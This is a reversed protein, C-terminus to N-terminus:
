QGGEYPCVDIFDCFASYGDGKPCKKPELPYESNRIKDVYIRIMAQVEDLMRQWEDDKLIGKRKRKAFPLKADKVLINEVAGKKMSVFAGGPVIKQLLKEAVLIYVPMQLNTGDYIANIDPTYSNKYDYVIARGSSDTDIRDIKGCLKIDPNKDLAFSGDYGFALEQKEPLFDGQVGIHYELYAMINDILNNKEIEYLKSHPFNEPKNIGQLFQETINTIEVSYEPLKETLLKERHKQFFVEMVKHLINGKTIANYQSEDYEREIKLVRSLFFKYPCEGYTNLASISFIYNNFYERIKQKVEDSNIGLEPLNRRVDSRNIVSAFDVKREDIRGATEKVKVLFPSPLAPTEQEIVKPYSFYGNSSSAMLFEFAERERQLLLDITDISYGQQNILEREENKLLWDPRFDRPFEGEVMGLVYVKDFKLGRLMTPALVEIGPQAPRRVYNRTMCFARLIKLFGEFTLESHSYIDDATRIDELLGIFAEYSKIDRIILDLDKGHVQTFKEPYGREKLFSLIFEAWEGPKKHMTGDFPLSEDFYLDAEGRFFEKVFPNELLIGQKPLNVPIRAKEFVEIILPSYTDISRVVICAREPPLGESIDKLIEHALNYVETKRDQAAIITASNICPRLPSNVSEFRDGLADTIKKQITNLYFFDKFVIRDYNRVFASEAIYQKCLIYRDELDYLGRTKLFEEYSEYILFFDMLRPNDEVLDRFTQADIDQRKLEGIVESIKEVYGPYITKFYILRDSLKRCTAEIIYNKKFDGLFSDARVFEKICRDVFYDYNIPMDGAFGAKGEICKAQYQKVLQSTPYVILKRM